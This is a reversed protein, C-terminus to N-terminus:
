YDGPGEENGYATGLAQWVGMSGRFQHGVPRSGDCLAVNVGGVHRSRAFMSKVMLLVRERAHRIRSPPM